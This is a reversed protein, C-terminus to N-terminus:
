GNPNGASITRLQIMNFTRMSNVMPDSSSKKAFESSATVTMRRQKEIRDRKMALLSSVSNLRSHSSTHSGMQSTFGDEEEGEETPPPSPSRTMIQSASINNDRGERLRETYILILDVLDRYLNYLYSVM